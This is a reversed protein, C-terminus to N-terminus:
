KLNVQFFPIISSDVLQTHAARRLTMVKYLQDAQEESLQLTQIAYNFGEADANQEIGVANIHAAQITRNGDIEAKSITWNTKAQLTAVQVNTEAKIVDVTQQNQELINNQIELISEM